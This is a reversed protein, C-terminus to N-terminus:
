ENTTGLSGYVADKHEDINKVLMGEVDAFEANYDFVEEKFTNDQVQEIEKKQIVSELGKEMQEVINGDTSIEPLDEHSPKRRTINCEWVFNTLLPSISDKSLNSDSVFTIVFDRFQTEDNLFPIRIFDGVKPQFTVPTTVDPRTEDLVADLTDWHANNNTKFSNYKIKFKLTVEAKGKGLKSSVKYNTIEASISDKDLEVFKLSEFTTTYEPNIDSVPFTFEKIIDNQLISGLEMDSTIIPHVIVNYTLNDEVVFPIEIDKDNVSEWHLLNVKFKVEVDKTKELGFFQLCYQEYQRKTIYLKADNGIDAGFSAFIYADSGYDVLAKIPMCFGFSNREVGNFYTFDRIAPNVEGDIYLNKIKGTSDYYDLNRSIYQVDLGYLGIYEQFQAEQIKVYQKLADRNVFSYQFAKSTSQKKGM